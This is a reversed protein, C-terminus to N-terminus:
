NRNATIGDVACIVIICVSLFTFMYQMTIKLIELFDQMM